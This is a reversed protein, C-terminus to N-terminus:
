NRNSLDVADDELQLLKFCLDFAFQIKICILGQITMFENTKWIRWNKM